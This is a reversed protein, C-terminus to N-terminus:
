VVSEQRWLVTGDSDCITVLRDLRFRHERGGAEVVLYEARDRTLLDSVRGSCTVSAGDAAVAQVEVPTRRLALLELVSHHDCGIPHYDTTM